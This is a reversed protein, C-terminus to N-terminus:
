VNYNEKEEVSNSFFNFRNSKLNLNETELMQIKKILEDDKLKKRRLMENESSLKSLQILLEDNKNMQNNENLKQFNYSLNELAQKTIILENSLFVTKQTLIEIQNQKENVVDEYKEEREEYELNKSKLNQAFVHLNGFQKKLNEIEGEKEEKFNSFGINFEQNMNEIKRNLNENIQQIQNLNENKQQIERKLNEIKFESEKTFFNLKEQLKNSYCEFNKKMEHEKEFSNKLNEISCKQNEIEKVCQNYMQQLHNNKVNLSQFSSNEKILIANKEEIEKLKLKILEENKELLEIKVKSEEFDQKYGGKDLHDITNLLEIKIEECFERLKKNINLEKELSEELNEFKELKEKMEFYELSHQIATPHRNYEFIKKISKEIRTLTEEENFFFENLNEKKGKMKLIELERFKLIMKLQFINENKSEVLTRLLDIKKVENEYKENTKELENLSLKILKFKKTEEMKEDDEEVVQNLESIIDDQQGSSRGKQNKLFNPNKSMRRFNEIENKLNKIEDQLALITGSTDENVIPKNKVYKACQAFHLTSVTERLNILAPSTNAIICTESNGGLSDRLLFTLKSDRYSIHRQNGNSIDVLGNIVQGLVTLSKNIYCGEKFREGESNTSKQRESGALDILNLRSRRIKSIGEEKKETHKINITFVSHSRSSQENMDTSATHRNSIGKKLLTYAENATSVKQLVLNEVYVGERNGERLSLSDPKIKSFDLLDTIKENYIELFSCTCECEVNTKENQKEAYSFLSEFMQPILGKESEDFKKNSNPDPGIMTYTKGSGTQGYCFITGNYGSMCSEVIPLGVKNFIEKQTVKEDAVFDFSFMKEKKSDSDLTKIYRGNTDVSVGKGQREENKSLPRVRVVVKVGVNEKNNM